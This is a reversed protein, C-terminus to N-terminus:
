ENGLVCMCVYVYVCSVELVDLNHQRLAFGMPAYQQQLDRAETIAVAATMLGLAMVVCAGLEIRFVM